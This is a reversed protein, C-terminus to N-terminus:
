DYFGLEMVESLALKAVTWFHHQYQAGCTLVQQAQIARDFPAQM